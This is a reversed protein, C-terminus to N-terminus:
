IRAPYLLLFLLPAVSDDEGDGALDARLDLDDVGEGAVGVVGFEDVPELAGGAGFVAGPEDVAFGVAGQFEAFAEHGGM